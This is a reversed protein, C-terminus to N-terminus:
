SVYLKLVTAIVGGVLIGLAWKVLNMDGQLVTIKQELSNFRNEFGAVAEAAKRAKDQSAGADLFADYVESIMTSM